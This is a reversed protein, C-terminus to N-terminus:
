RSADLLALLIHFFLVSFKVSLPFRVLLIVRADLVQSLVKKLCVEYDDGILQSVYLLNFHLNSVL